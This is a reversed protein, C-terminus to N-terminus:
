LGSLPNLNSKISVSGQVEWTTLIEYACTTGNRFDGRRGLEQQLSAEGGKLANRNKM